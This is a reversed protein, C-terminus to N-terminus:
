LFNPLQDESLQEIVRITGYVHCTAGFVSKIFVKIFFEPDVVARGVKWERQSGSNISGVMALSTGPAAAVADVDSFSASELISSGPPRDTLASDTRTGSADASLLFDIILDGANGAENINYEISDIVAPGLLKPSVAISTKQSSAGIAFPWLRVRPIVVGGGGGPGFGGGAAARNRRPAPYLLSTIAM